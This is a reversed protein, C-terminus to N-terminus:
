SALLKWADPCLANVEKPSLDVGDPTVAGRMKGKCFLIAVPRKNGVIVLSNEGRNATVSSEVLAAVTVSGVTVKRDM